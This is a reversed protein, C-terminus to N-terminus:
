TWRGRATALTPPTRPPLARPFRAPPPPLPPPTVIHIPGSCACSRSALPHLPTSRGTLVGSATIKRRDLTHACSPAGVKTKAAAASPVPFVFPPGGRRTVNDDADHEIADYEEEVAYFPLLEYNEMGSADKAGAAMAKARALRRQWAHEKGVQISIVHDCLGAAEANELLLFGEVVVFPTFGTHIEITARLKRLFAPWNVCRASEWNKWCRHGGPARFTSNQRRSPPDFMWEHYSDDLCIVPVYTGHEAAYARLASSVTSKGSCSMGCVGIVTPRQKSPGGGGLSSRLAAGPRIAGAFNM